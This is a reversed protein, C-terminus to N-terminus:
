AAISESSAGGSKKVLELFSMHKKKASKAAEIVQEAEEIADVIKKYNETLVDVDINSGLSSTTVSLMMIKDQTALLQAIGNDIEEGRKKGEPNAFDLSDLDGLM